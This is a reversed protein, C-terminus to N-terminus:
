KVDWEEQWLASWYDFFISVCAALVDDFNIIQVFNVGIFEHISKCSVILGILV